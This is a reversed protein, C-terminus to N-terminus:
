GHGGNGVVGVGGDRRLGCRSNIFRSAVFGIPREDNPRMKIQVWFLEFPDGNENTGWCRPQAMPDVYVVDNQRLTVGTIIGGCQSERVNLYDNGGRDSPINDVRCQKYEAARSESIGGIVMLCGLLVVRLKVTEV